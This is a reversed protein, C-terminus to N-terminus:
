VKLTLTLKVAPYKCYGVEAGPTRRTFAASEQPHLDWGAIRELRFCGSCDHLLRFPQLRRTFRAVFYPPLALTCATVHTFASYAEFLFICPDVRRGYRPLSIRSSPHAFCSWGDSHRPLPSLMYVLPFRACCPFGKPTTPSSWGSARTEM